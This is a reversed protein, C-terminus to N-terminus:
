PIFRLPPGFETFAAPVASARFAPVDSAASAWHAATAAAAVIALAIPIIARATIAHRAAPKAPRRWPM